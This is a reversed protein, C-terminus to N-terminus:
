GQEKLNLYGDVTMWRTSGDEFQVLVEKTYMFYRTDIAQINM